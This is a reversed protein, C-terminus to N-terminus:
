RPGVRYTYWGEQRRKVERPVLIKGKCFAQRPDYGPHKNHQRNYEHIMKAFQGTGTLQQSVEEYSEGRCIHYQGEAISQQATTVHPRTRQAASEQDASGNLALLGVCASVIGLTAYIPARNRFARDVRDSGETLEIRAVYDPNASIQLREAERLLELSDELEEICSDLDEHETSEQVDNEPSAGIMLQFHPKVMDIIQLAKSELCHDSSLIREVGEDRTTRLLYDIAVLGQLDKQDRAYRLQPLLNKNRFIDAYVFGALIAANNPELRRIKQKRITPKNFRLQTPQTPLEMMSICYDALRDEVFDGNFSISRDRALSNNIMDQQAILDKTFSAFVARGFHATSMVRRDINPTLYSAILNQEISLEPSHQLRTDYFINNFVQAIMEDQYEENPRM